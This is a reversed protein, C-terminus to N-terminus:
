VSWNNPLGKDKNHGAALGICAAIITVCNSGFTFVVGTLNAPLSSYQKRSLM